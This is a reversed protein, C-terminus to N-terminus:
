CSGAAGFDQTWYLTGGASLALGFGVHTYSGNLLNARHGASGMWGAMVASVSRYGYAVNEGLTSWGLYGSRNARTALDSGDGGTHSMTSRTAQDASHAQAAWALTGCWSLPAVGVAARQGNVNALM